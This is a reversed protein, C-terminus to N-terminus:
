LWGLKEAVKIGIKEEESDKDCNSIASLWGEKAEKETLKGTAKTLGPVSFEIDYKAAMDRVAREERLDFGAAVAPCECGDIENKGHAFKRTTM